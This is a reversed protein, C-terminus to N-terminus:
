NYEVKILVTESSTAHLHHNKALARRKSFFYINIPLCTSCKWKYPEIVWRCTYSRSIDCGNSFLSCRVWVRLDPIHTIQISQFTTSEDKLFWNTSLELFPFWLQIARWFKWTRYKLALTTNRLPQLQNKFVIGM